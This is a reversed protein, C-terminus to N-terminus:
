FGRTESPIMMKLQWAPVAIRSRKRDLTRATQGNPSADGHRLQHLTWYHLSSGEEWEDQVSPGWLDIEGGNGGEESAGTSDLFNYNDIAVICSILSVISNTWFFECLWEQNLIKGFFFKRM